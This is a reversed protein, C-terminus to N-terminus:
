GTIGRGGNQTDIAAALPRMVTFTVFERRLEATRGGEALSRVVMLVPNVDAADWVTLMTEVIREGLRDTGQDVLGALISAPDVPIDLAAVFLDSKSGFFHHVLAPDVEADAAIGRITAGTFGNDTFQRRAADLIEGRTDTAGPRRGTRAM